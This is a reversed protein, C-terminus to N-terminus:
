LFSNFTKTKLLLPFAGLISRSSIHPHGPQTYRGSYPGSGCQVFYLMRTVKEKRSIPAMKVIFFAGMELFSFTVRCMKIPRNIDYFYSIIPGVDNIRCFILYIRFNRRKRAFGASGNITSKVPATFGGM